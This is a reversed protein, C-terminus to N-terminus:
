LPEPRYRIWIVSFRRGAGSDDDHEVATQPRFGRRKRAALETEYHATTLSWSVDWDPGDREQILITGFITKPHGYAYLCEPRWGQAKRKEVWDKCEALSQNVSEVYPLPPRRALAVGFRIPDDVIASRHIPRIPKDQRKTRKNAIDVKGQVFDKTGTWIGNDSSDPDRVWLYAEMLKAKERYLCYAVAEYQKGWMKDLHKDDDNPVRTFDWAPKKEEKLAVSTYRPAGKWSQVCLSVARYGDKKMQAIWADFRAEDADHIEAFDLVGKETRAPPPPPPKVTTVPPTVPPKVAVPLTTVPPKVPNSPVAPVVPTVVAPLAKRALAQDGHFVQVEGKRMEVKLTVTEGKKVLFKDTAFEFDGRKVLLGHEGARLTIEQKDAGKVTPGDKDFVVQIDPDNVDIRVTGKATPWFLVVGAALAAALVGGLALAVGKGAGSKKRTSVSPSPVAVTPGEQQELLRLAEVVEQASAIRQAPDKQLLKMVLDSLAAPVKSNVQAPPAPETTMVSLLTSVTDNGQFPLQGTCMRYLVVGLSWLDCRGDMQEGRGQEPAMYAPTGIIAGQQTLQPGEAAARALGFDLIKVRGEEGELWMNAPKIDRHVLGAAHAASLGKAAERGIRLIETLPLNRDRNLREDLPEGKLFPMAIFPVGRDEGVQYIPVIHDHEIAAATQAERLFRQKATESAALAPLMAKIALKRKLKPDEAQFVVGMGGAGLVKLVRYPGLRGLEDPQEPPALFDYHERNVGEPVTRQGTAHNKVGSGDRMRTEEQSAGSDRRPSEAATQSHGGVLVPTGPITLPQQCHPCRAKKGALDDKVKLTKGCASCAFSIM